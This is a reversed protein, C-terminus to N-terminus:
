EDETSGAVGARGDGKEVGDLCQTALSHGGGRVSDGSTVTGKM